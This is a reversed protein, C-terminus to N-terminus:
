SLIYKQSKFEIEPFSVWGVGGDMTMSNPVVGRWQDQQKIAVEGAVGEGYGSM